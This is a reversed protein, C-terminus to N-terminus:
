HRKGKKHIFQHHSMKEIVECMNMKPNILKKRTTFGGILHDVLELRFAM